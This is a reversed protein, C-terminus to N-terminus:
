ISKVEITKTFLKNIKKLKITLLGNHLTALMNETEIEEPLTISRSFKGWYLEEYLYDQSYNELSFDSINKIKVRGGKITLIKANTSILINQIPVGSIMAKIIISDNTQYGDILLKMEEQPYSNEEYNELPTTDKQSNLNSFTQQNLKDFYLKFPSTYEPSVFKVIKLITEEDGTDTLYFKGDNAIMKLQNCTTVLEKQANKFRNKLVKWYNRPDSSKTVITIVDVISFYWKNSKEEFHRRITNDKIITTNEQDM